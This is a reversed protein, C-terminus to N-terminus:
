KQQITPGAVPKPRGVDSKNLATFFSAALLL